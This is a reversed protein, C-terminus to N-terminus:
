FYFYRIFHLFLPATVTLSDLRDLIGGHGPLMCGTDKIGIDRKVASVTIDGLFGGLGIIVGAIAAHVLTFPTLFPAIAISLVITSVTGGLLGAWSKNPSVSQIVKRKGLLKGWIFQAVDNLETLFVLFLVLGIGYGRNFEDGPLVLLYALHSLSFVTTMIGWHLTGAAKLFGKTEGRLVMRLPIYLFMYVPIFIIFMGYWEIYIWWFQIPITFYAWFLIRRDVRRTPILSIYEKLALYSVLALFTIAVGKGLLLVIVFPGAIIWWTKIRLVLENCYEGPRFRKLLAIIVSATILLSFIGAAFWLVNPSLDLPNM